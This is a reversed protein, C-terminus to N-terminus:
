GCRCKGNRHRTVADSSLNHGWRTVVRAIAAHQIEAGAALAAVLRDRQEADLRPLLLAVPCKV